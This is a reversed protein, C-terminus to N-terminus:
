ELHASGMLALWQERSGPAFSGKTMAALLFLSSKGAVVRYLAHVPYGKPCGTSVREFTISGADQAIITFEAQCRKAADRKLQALWDVPSTIVKDPVRAIIVLAETWDKASKGRVAIIDVVNAPNSDDFHIMAPDGADLVAKLPPALRHDFVLKDALAPAACALLTVLLALRLKM